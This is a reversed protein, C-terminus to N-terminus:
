YNSWISIMALFEDESLIPINLQRAKELKAPGMNEGAVVYHTKSSISGANKGGNVEVLEKIEDRSFKSFVGSIVVIKGNLVDSVKEKEKETNEFQLGAEKLRQIQEIHREDSFYETISLAIRDGIEDVKLLEDYTAAM